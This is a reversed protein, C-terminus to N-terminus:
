LPPIKERGYRLVRTMWALENLFEAARGVYKEDKLNGQEDFADGVRSFNLDTFTVALRLERVVQVMQEIVRAGGFPGASVGCLAM